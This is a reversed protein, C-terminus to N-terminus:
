PVSVVRDNIEPLLQRSPNDFDILIRGSLQDLRYNEFLFVRAGVDPVPPNREGWDAISCAVDRLDCPDTEPVMRSFGLPHWDSSLNGIRESASYTQKDQEGCRFKQALECYHKYYKKYVDWEYSKIKKNGLNEIEEPGLVMPFPKYGVRSKCAGDVKAVVQLLGRASAPFLDHKPLPFIIASVGSVDNMSGGVRLVAQEATLDRLEGYDAVFVYQQKCGGTCSDDHECRGLNTLKGIDLFAKTSPSYPILRVLWTVKANDSLNKLITSKTAARRTPDDHIRALELMRLSPAAISLLLAAGVALFLLWRQWHAVEEAKAKSVHHMLIFALVFLLIGAVALLTSVASDSILRYLNAFANLTEDM